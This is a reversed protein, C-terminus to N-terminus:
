RRVSYVIRFTKTRVPPGCCGPGASCECCDGTPRIRSIDVPDCRRGSHNVGKPRTLSSNQRVGPPRNSAVSHQNSIVSSQDSAKVVSDALGMVYYFWGDAEDRGVHFLAMQSPHARSVAEFKLLEAFEGEIKIGGLGYVVLFVFLLCLGLALLARRGWLEARRDAIEIEESPLAM